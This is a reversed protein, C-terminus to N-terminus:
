QSDPARHSLFAKAAELIEEALPAQGSARALTVAGVMMSYEVLAQQRQAKLGQETGDNELTSMYTDILMSLGRLFTDHVASQENERAVEGAFAVVPCLDDHQGQALYHDIVAERAAPKESHAAIKERWVTKSQEFAQACAENALAEKSKFHGYFGGHTLGSAHMVEALTIGQFGRERFLKAATETIKIKNLETQARSVRPM